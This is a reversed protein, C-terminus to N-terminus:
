ALAVSGSVVTGNATKGKFMAKGAGNTADFWISLENASLDADAPAAVKATVYYGDKNFRSFIQGDEKSIEVINATQSTKRLFRVTRVTTSQATVELQATPIAGFGVRGDSRLYLSTLGPSDPTAATGNATYFALDYTAGVYGFRWDQLGSGQHFNVFCNDATASREFRAADLAPTAPMVVHLKATPDSIDLGLRGTTTIGFSGTAVSDVISAGKMLHTVAATANQLNVLNRITAADGSGGTYSGITLRDTDNPHGVSNALQWTATTQRVRLLDSSRSADYALVLDTTASDLGIDWLLDSGTYFGIGLAYTDSSRTLRPGASGSPTKAAATVSFTFDHAGDGPTMTATGTQSVFQSNLESDTKNSIPQGVENVLIVREPALNPSPTGSAVILKKTGTNNM